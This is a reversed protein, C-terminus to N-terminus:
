RIPPWFVQWGLLLFLVFLLLSGLLPTPSWNTTGGRPYTAAANFVFWVLM